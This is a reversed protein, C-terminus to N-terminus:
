LTAMAEKECRMACRRQNGMVTVILTAADFGGNGTGREHGNQAKKAKRWGDDMM